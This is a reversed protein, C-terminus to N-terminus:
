LILLLCSFDQSYFVQFCKRMLVLYVERPSNLEIPSTLYLSFIMPMIINVSEDASVAM